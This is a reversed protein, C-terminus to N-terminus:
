KRSFRITKRIIRVYTRVHATNVTSEPSFDSEKILLHTADDPSSCFLFCFCVLALRVCYVCVLLLLFCNCRVVLCIYTRVYAWVDTRGCLLSIISAFFQEARSLYSVYFSFPDTQLFYLFAKKRKEDEKNTRSMWFKHDSRRSLRLVHVVMVVTRVALVLSM